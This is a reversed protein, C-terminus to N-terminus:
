VLACVYELVYKISVSPQKLMSLARTYIEGHEGKKKDSEQISEVISIIDQKTVKEDDYEKMLKKILDFREAVTKKHINWENTHSINNEEHAVIVRSLITSMFVSHTHTYILICSEADMDELVKLLAHQAPQAIEDSILIALKKVGYVEGSSEKQFEYTFDRVDDVLIKEKAYVRIDPHSQIHERISAHRTDFPITSHVIVAEGKQIYADLIM